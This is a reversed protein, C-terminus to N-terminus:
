GARLASSDAFVPLIAARLVLALVGCLLVSSAAGAPSTESLASREESVMRLRRAPKGSGRDAGCHRPCKRTWSHLDNAKHLRLSVPCTLHGTIQGRKGWGPSAGSRVYQVARLYYNMQLKRGSSSFLRFHAIGMRQLALKFSTALVGFGYKVSRSFISRRLRPLINRRAPYKESPSRWFVCQALMENDFVFNM